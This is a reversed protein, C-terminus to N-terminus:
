ANSERACWSEIASVLDHDKASAARLIPARINLDGLTAAVRVSPVVWHARDFERRLAATGLALLGEAIEASTATIVRLDGSLFRSELAALTEPTHKIRKREYVQATTVLAGRATLQQELFERGGIGKVILIRRGEPQMLAPHLLLNESDFGDKPVIAVRYGSGELASATAPGVAALTLERRAGLLTVGFRVANASTFIITDFDDIPGMRSPLADLHLTPEIRLIPLRLPLAGRAALLECLSTSQQEPRTVLVAVGQLPLM